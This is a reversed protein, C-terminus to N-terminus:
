LSLDYQLGFVFTRPASATYTPQSTTLNGRTVNYAYLKDAINMVNVYAEVGKIKYAVRGNFLNYGDYKVTNIQDQYYSSVFQWETSIRFNPM